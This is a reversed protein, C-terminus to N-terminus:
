AHRKLYEYKGYHRIEKERTNTNTQSTAGKEKKKREKQDKEMKKKNGYLLALKKNEIDHTTDMKYHFSMKM